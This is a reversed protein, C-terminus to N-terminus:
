VTSTLWCCFTTFSYLVGSCNQTITPTDSPRSPYSFLPSYSKETFGTGAVALVGDSDKECTFLTTHACWTGTPSTVSCGTALRM